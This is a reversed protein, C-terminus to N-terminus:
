QRKERTMVWAAVRTMALAIERALEKREWDEKCLLPEAFQLDDCYRGGGLKMCSLARVEEYPAPWSMIEHGEHGPHRLDRNAKLYDFWSM